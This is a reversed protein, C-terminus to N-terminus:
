PGPPLDASVLARVATETAVAMDVSGPALLWQVQRGDMTAIVASAVTEHDLGAPVDGAEAAERLSQVVM